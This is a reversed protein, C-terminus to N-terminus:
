PAWERMSSKFALFVRKLGCGMEDNYYETHTFDMLPGRFDAKGFIRELIRSVEYILEPEGSFISAILKVKGPKFRRGM